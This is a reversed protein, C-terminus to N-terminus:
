PQFQIGAARCVSPLIEEPLRLGTSGLVVLVEEWDGATLIDDIIQPTAKKLCGPATIAAAVRQKQRRNGLM